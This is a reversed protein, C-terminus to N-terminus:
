CCGNVIVAESVSVGPSRGITKPHDKKTQVYQWAQARATEPADLFVSIIAVVCIMLGKVTRPMQTSVRWCSMARWRHYLLFMQSFSLIFNWEHCSRVFDHLNIALLLLSWSILSVLFCPSQSFSPIVYLEPDPQYSTFIRPPLTLEAVDISPIATV